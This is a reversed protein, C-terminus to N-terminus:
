GGEGKAKGTREALEKRVRELKVPAVYLYELIADTFDTASVVDSSRAEVGSEHAGLNGLDRLFGAMEEFVKPLDKDEALKKLRSDLTGRIVGNEACLAELTRRLGLAYYGADIRKVRQAKEYEVRIRSPISSLDRVQPYIISYSVESPDMWDGYAYTCLTFEACQTCQMFLVNKSWEYPSGDDGEYSKSEVAQQAITKLADLGGCHPCNNM